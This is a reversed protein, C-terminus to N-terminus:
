VVLDFSKSVISRKYIIKYAQKFVEYIYPDFRGLNTTRPLYANTKTNFHSQM